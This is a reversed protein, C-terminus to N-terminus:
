IPHSEEYLPWSRHPPQRRPIIRKQHIRVNIYKILNDNKTIEKLM